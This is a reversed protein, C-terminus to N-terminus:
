WSRNTRKNNPKTASNYLKLPLIDVVDALPIRHQTVEKGEKAPIAFEITNQVMDQRSYKYIFKIKRVKKGERFLIIWDPERQVEDEKIETRM